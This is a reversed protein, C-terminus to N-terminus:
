NDHKCTFILFITILLWVFNIFPWGSNSSDDKNSDEDEMFDTNSSSQVISYGEELLDINTSGEINTDGTEIFDANSLRQMSAYGEQLLDINSSGEINSDGVEMFDVISSCEVISEGAEMYCKIIWVMLGIAISLYIPGLLYEYISNNLKRDAKEALEKQKYYSKYGFIAAPVALILVLLSPHILVALLTPLIITIVVLCKQFLEDLYDDRLGYIKMSFLLMIVVIIFAYSNVDDEPLMGKGLSINVIWWILLCITATDGSVYMTHTLVEEYSKKMWKLVGYAICASITTALLVKLLYSEVRIIASVIEISVWCVTFWNVTDSTPEDYKSEKAWWVLLFFITLMIWSLPEEKYVQGLTSGFLTGVASSYTIDDIFSNYSTKLNVISLVCAVALCVSRIKGLICTLVVTLSFGLLMFLFPTTSPEVPDKTNCM